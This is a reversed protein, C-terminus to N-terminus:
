YPPPPPPPPPPPCSGPDVLVRPPVVVTRAPDVCGSHPDGSHSLVIALRTKNALEQHLPELLAREPSIDMCRGNHHTFTLVHDRGGSRAWFPHARTVHDVADLALRRARDRATQNRERGALLASTYSPVFFLTAASANRTRHPSKLLSQHILQETSFPFYEGTPSKARPGPVEALADKLFRAPMDYIYICPSKKCAAGPPLSSRRPEAAGRHLMLHLWASSFALWVGLVVLMFAALTVRV